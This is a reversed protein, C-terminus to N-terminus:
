PQPESRPIYSPWNGGEMGNARGDNGGGLGQSGGNMNVYITGAPMLQNEDPQKDVGDDYHLLFPDSLLVTAFMALSAAWRAKNSVSGPLADIAALLSSNRSTVATVAGGDDSYGALPDYVEYRDPVFGGIEIDIVDLKDPATNTRKM